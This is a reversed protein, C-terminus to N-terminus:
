VAGVVDRMEIVVRRLADAHTNLDQGAAASEEASAATKQTVQEMQVVARAIQEMGRAQEQSGQNVEDVLVRVHKANDILGRVSGAMRELRGNGEHTTSISEEILAATDKAAQACRQALSRVEDAVVAFGLGADGARAAEVAANLALINTQFAIEDIVKIIRAIKTSSGDIEKMSAVMEELTQNVETTRKDNEIMLSAVSAANDANKHTISSIEETSASTEELSAAQDSAGQALSQSAASVQRTATSVREASEAMEAAMHKLGAGARNVTAFVLGGVALALLSLGFVIARARTRKGSVGEQVVALERNQRDQLAATQKGVEELRGLAKNQFVSLAVDLKNDGIARRIEEHVAGVQEIQAEVGRLVSGVESDGVISKLEAVSRRSRDLPAQFRSVYDGMKASDGLVSALITGRELDAMSFADAAVSGALYQARATVKATRELGTSLDQTVVMAALGLLLAVGLMAGFSYLLKKTLSM